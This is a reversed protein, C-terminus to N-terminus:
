GRRGGARRGRDRRTSCGVVGCEEGNEPAPAQVIRTRISKLGNQHAEDLLGAYLAFTKGQRDILFERKM